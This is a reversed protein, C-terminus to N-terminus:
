PQKTAKMLSRSPPWAKMEGFEPLHDLPAIGFEVLLDRTRTEVASISTWGSNGSPKMALGRDSAGLTSAVFKPCLVPNFALLHFTCLLAKLAVSRVGVSAFM